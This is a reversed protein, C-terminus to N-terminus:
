MKVGKIIKYQPLKEWKYYKQLEKDNEKIEELRKKAIELTPCSCVCFLLNDIDTLVINYYNKM